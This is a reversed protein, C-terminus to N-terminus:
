RLPPLIEKKDWIHNGSTMVDVGANLLEQATKPTLGFGGATNEANAIVLDIHLEQRLRPLLAALTNRGPKGIIDGIMLVRM